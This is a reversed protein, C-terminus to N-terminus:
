PAYPFIELTDPRLGAMEVLNLSNSKMQMIYCNGTYIDPNDAMDVM